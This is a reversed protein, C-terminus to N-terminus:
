ESRWDRGPIANAMADLIMAKLDGSFKNRSGKPRGPGPVPMNGGGKKNTVGIAKEQSQKVRPTIGPRGRPMITALREIV